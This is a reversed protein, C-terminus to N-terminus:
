NKQSDNLIYFLVIKFMFFLFLIKLIKFQTLTGKVIFNLFFVWYMYNWKIFFFLLVFFKIDGEALSAECCIRDLFHNYNWSLLQFHKFILAFWMNVFASSFPFCFNILAFNVLTVKLDSFITCLLTFFFLNILYLWIFCTMEQSNSSWLHM